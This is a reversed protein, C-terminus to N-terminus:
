AAEQSISSGPLDSILGDLIAAAVQPEFYSELEELATQWDGAELRPQDACSAFAHCGM